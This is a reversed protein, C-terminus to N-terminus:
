AGGKWRLMITRLREVGPVRALMACVSSSRHVRLQNLLTANSLEGRTRLYEWALNLMWAPVSQPGTRRLGTRETEILAEASTLAVVKNPRPSAGLTVFVPDRRQERVLAAYLQPEIEEGPADAARAVWPESRADGWLAEGIEWARALPRNDRLGALAVGVEVNCALGATLNASGIVARADRGRAGLYLKPHYTGGAHNHVRVEVGMGRAVALAGATTASRGLATTVLLRSRAGRQSAAELEKGLLRVGREHAFAVCLLVDEASALTARVADLLGFGTATVTEVQLTM